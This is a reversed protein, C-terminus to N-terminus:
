EQLETRARPHEQRPPDGAHVAHTRQSTSPTRPRRATCSKAASRSNPRKWSCAATPPTPTSSPPLAPLATMMSAKRAIGRRLPYRPGGRRGAGARGRTGAAVARLRGAGRERVLVAAPGPHQGARDRCFGLDRPVRQRIGGSVDLLQGVLPPGIVATMNGGFGVFAQASAPSAPMSAAAGNFVAAYPMGAGLGTALLGIIAIQLSGAFAM